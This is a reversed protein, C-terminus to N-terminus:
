TCIKTESSGQHHQLNQRGSRFHCDQGSCFRVAQGAEHNRRVDDGPPHREQDSEEEHQDVDEVGDGGVSGLCFTCYIYCFTKIKIKIKWITCKVLKKYNGYFINRGELNSQLQPRSTTTCETRTQLERLDPM